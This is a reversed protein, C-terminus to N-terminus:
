MMPKARHGLVYQCRKFTWYVVTYQASQEYSAIKFQSRKQMPDESVQAYALLYIIMMVNDYIAQKVKYERM